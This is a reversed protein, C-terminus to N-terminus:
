KGGVSNLFQRGFVGWKSVVAGTVRNNMWLATAPAVLPIVPLDHAAIANAMIEEAAEVKPDYSARAADIAQNVKPNNYNSFNTLQNPSYV